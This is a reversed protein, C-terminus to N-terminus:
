WWFGCLLQDYFRGSLWGGPIRRELEASDM